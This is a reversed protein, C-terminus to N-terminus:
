ICDKCCRNRTTNTAGDTLKKGYKNDFGKTFSLFDYKKFRM